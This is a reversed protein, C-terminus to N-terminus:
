QDDRRQAGLVSTFLYGVQGGVVVVAALNRGSVAVVAALDRGGVVVIAALDRAGVVVVAALHWGLNRSLHRSM